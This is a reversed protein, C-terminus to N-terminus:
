RDGRYEGRFLAILVMLVGLLKSVTAFGPIAVDLRDMLFGFGIALGGLVLFAVIFGLRRRRLARPVMSSDAMRLEFNEKASIPREALQRVLSDFTGDAALQIAEQESFDVDFEEAVALLLEGFDMEEDFEVARDEPFVRSIGVADAYIARLRLPIEQPVETHRYFREYFENDSLEPRQRM